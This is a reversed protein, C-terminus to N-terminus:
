SIFTELGLFTLLENDRFLKDRGEPLVKKVKSETIPEEIASMRYLCVALTAALLNANDKCCYDVALYSFGVKGIHVRYGFLVRYTYIEWQGDESLYRDLSYDTNHAQYFKM